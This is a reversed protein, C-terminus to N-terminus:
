GNRVVVCLFSGSNELECNFVFFDLNLPTPHVETDADFFVILASVLVSQILSTLVLVVVFLEDRM